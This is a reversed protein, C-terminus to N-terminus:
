AAPRCNVSELPLESGTRNNNTRTTVVFEGPKRLLWIYGPLFWYLYRAFLDAIWAKASGAALMSTIGFRTPDGIMAVTYDVVTFNAVLKRLGWYSFHLEHYHRAKGALRIYLHALPRPIASLLPLKYHPENWMFRNSGAFYCIGGPRLVRHIERMMQHADPVHEYVHSCIVVDKSDDPFRLSMADGVRFELRDSEFSSAAFAIARADIDIGTVSAFHESLCDDIIGTSAGVDLAHLADLPTDFYHQIVAIMTAAKRRRGNRDFMSPSSASFDHQYARPRKM